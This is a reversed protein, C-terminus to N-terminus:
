SVENYEFNIGEEGDEFNKIVFIDTFHDKQNTRILQHKALELVASFTVVIESRTTDESFLEFFSVENQRRLKDVLFTIKDKVSFSEKKIERIVNKDIERLEVKNLISAFANLLNNLSFDKLSYRVEESQKSPEKFLRDPNEITKLEEAAEKLLKYEELQRIFLKKPSDYDNEELGPMIPLMDHSKIEMLTAAIFMYESAKDIDLFDVQDLYQLFQDTVESIFIDKIEIKADNVLKLLLDMPGSFNKINLSLSNKATFEGMDEVEEVQQHEILSDNDKM